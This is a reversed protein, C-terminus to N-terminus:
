TTLKRRVLFGMAIMLIFIAPIGLSPILLAVGLRTPDGVDISVPDDTPIPTQGSDADNNPDGDNDQDWNAMAQNEVSQVGVGSILTDFRIVIENNLEEPTSDPAAGQDEGLIATLELRNLNANFIPTTCTSTGTAVCSEGGFFVTNDPMEDFIFVPLDRDNNPNFWWFTWHIVRPNDADFEGIKLGVPPNLQLSTDDTADNNDPNVDQGNAGDDGISVNNVVLNVGIALPDDVLVAFTESGTEDVNLNGVLFTCTSGASGDPTCTWAVSSSAADYSTNAPVTETITVGTANQDGINSYDLTYVITQGPGSSIDGDTKTITLDPFAGVDTTEPDTNNSDDPDDGNTGDDAVSATNLIQDVGAPLPNDLIVAYQITSPGDIVNLNGVNFTCTSGANNDPACTWGASSSTPDFTTNAPVTDTVVVGTADQPGLNQYTLDYIITGGANVNDSQDVKNLSLDPAADLPTNDDGTNNNPDADDGNDGDDAISITNDISDVGAPLTEIVDVAFTTSGSDGGGDLNGIALTCTSTATSDPTCLWGAASATANFVTHLPVTETIVVGTSEQDGINSYDITYIITGGAIATIGGDDKSITLDPVSGVPTNDGGTNNDPDPDVGNSGDDAIVVVNNITKVNSPLPNDITIAFLTDASANVALAGVALTCSSGANGDPACAWGPSSAAANFVTNAPVTETIVVGTANQDGINNYTITYVVTDGAEASLGNDTKTVVLDPTADVPTNDSGDNDDPTPDVGNNGDDGISVSNAIQTVGAPLPDDVQIAFLVSAAAIGADVTGINQTCTSGASGDPVCVWTGTSGAANFTSNAPVTETIVVGTAGQTGNNIYSLTYVIVSGPTSSVGGDDKSISLDPVATVPTDDSGNNNNPDADPGNDGDDAISVTNNIMEVGAPLISIVDVVFNVIGSQGGGNLDGVSITCTSGATNDPLCAWGVSSAGANFVTYLPVTETIVIGTSEQSGINAYNITYNISGGVTATIGGDDKSITLDPVAGIPTNDGGTNNDPDPDVGNSGDDGITVVNAIVKVNSPLPNDVTVAFTVNAMANVALAGVTFECSSGANGDPTCIWGATSSGVNFITNAPVTETIVVGTADQNGINNYTIVYAITDGADAGIGNDTKTVVLDPAADVPTNDNDGNNGPTPDVGNNGDDAISVTNNIQTVGSPLPTDITVAFLVSAPAAGANVNGINQTCTSGASNDPVCVWSGSSNGSDFTTHTPVTETIVVGTADQSGTNSYTITYVTSSGPTTTVDGDDKTVQLDPVATVPTNDTDNNNNPDADPGNTGDDAISIGNNIMEVGAPLIAIVDVAFIAMASQGGGNLDPVSLTCTSGATNNPLCAWGATSAGSNFVTNLPVTETIVIGTAQQTGINSYSIAYSITGGVSATAGGDDKTIVLDPVATVPTNDGGTNNDPNPDIGNTGDDTISVNNVIALVTAPLPNDIDIAFNVMSGGNVAVSGIALTCSSGANNDPLCVWGATSSGPNFTSNAPVTETIVVGTANQNGINDYTIIYTVTDGANAMVNNDTKSIVFDPAANVPTNDNDSNDDPTPDAGNTGDDAISVSNNIQTVGSALPNDIQVAFNVNGTGNNGALNGVTFNCTSGATNDPLCTWGITSNAANFVTNAPIIETIVVGTADQTGVNIYNILYTVIGGPITSTDGDTKTVQLDPTSSIPTTDTGTNNMSDSDAGNAGDDAISATNSLQTVGAALPSDITVAFMTTAAPDGADVNGINQTCTSGASNDPLCTWIGSSSAMDFTSNAPVTETIVVGTADQNGINAYTLTYIVVGGPMATTGGDDKSITLDPAGDVAVVTSDDDTGTDPDDTMSDPLEDSEVLGQNALTEIGTPLPNNVTVTYTITVSSSNPLSAIDIEVFTDGATNGTTITGLTTTVSGVDLQTNTDPADSLTVNSAPADGTNNIVITYLIQEGPSIGGSMNTDTVIAAAKTSDLVPIALMTSGDVDPLDRETPDAGPLTSAETVTATNPITTPLTVDNRLTVNFTFVIMEAPEISTAPTSGMPDSTISVTHDTAGPGAADSLIFGTPITVGTITSVDWINTDLVDEITIDYASANGTNSLTLTIPVVNDTMPGMSKNLGLLPVVVEIDATNNLMTGAGYTFTATNTLLDLDANEVVDVVRATVTIIIHDDTDVMGDPANTVTGFNLTAQDDFADADTNVIVATGPLTTSINGGITDVTASVMEMVGGSGVLPLQDVVVANTTTGEPFIVTINFDILEGIAMDPILMNGVNDGTDGLSTNVSSATKIIAPDPTVFSSNAMDSDTRTESGIVSTSTWSATVTNQYSENPNVAVDVSVQYEITCSDTALALTSFTFEITPDTSSDTVLGTCTSMVTSDNIWSTGPNPLVDTVTFNFADSTSTANVHDITIRYTLTDGADATVSAPVTAKTVEIVPAVVDILATSEINVSGSTFRATNIVDNLGGQNVMDDVLIANVQFVIQDDANSVGDPNNFVDGLNWTVLDNYTDADSNSIVPPAASGPVTLQGGISIIQTGLVQADMLTTVTPLQDTVVAALSTGEPITLTFRYTVLEGVAVDDEPGNIATMTTAESTDFVIKNLGPATIMVAHSENSSGDREEANVGPLSDWVVGATNVINQEPAVTNDVTVDFSIVATSGLTFNSWFASIIGANEVLTGGDPALGSDLTLNGAFSFGTPINDTLTVDFANANSNTTADNRIEITFTVTDGADATTTPSSKDIGLRPEVVEIDASASANLGASYQVMVNNTLVELGSNVNDDTVIATVEVIIRDDDNLVGDPINTVSGFDFAVVNAAGITGMTLTNTPTLQGGVSVVTSSVVEMQGTANGPLTDTIIVSPSVGEALTATIRFTVEEGITLDVLGVNGEGSVGGTQESSTAPLVTKVVEAGSVSVTAPNSTPGYTRGGVPLSTSEVAATNVLMAGSPASAGIIANFTITVPSAPSFPMTGVDVVVTTDPGGGNGTTVSGQSTMVTGDVLTLNTNTLLDTMVVNFADSTGTNRLVVTYIVTDGADAMMPMVSKDITVNPERITVNNASDSINGGDYNFTANNNRNQGNSNIPLDAVLTTYLITITDPTGNATNSNTINDFPFSANRTGIGTADNLVGTFGGAHSTSIGATAVISDFSQFVLGSDLVDTLTTNLSQGETLTIVVSYQITEGITVTADNGDPDPATDTVGKTISPEGVIATADDMLTPFPVGGVASAFVTSATNTFSSEPQVVSSVTCTYTVLATDTSYPAGVTGDNAELPNSLSLGTSLSGTTVLPTLAGNTVSDITCGTLEAIAPDTITVDFARAGGTNEITLVFTIDDGADVGTVDGDIPIIAPLPAITGQDTASIGKVMNLVPANVTISVPTVGSTVEGVTNNSNIQLLNALNLNDAFPDTSITVDVDVSVTQATVTSINPWEIRLSNTAADITISTPTLGMTDIPSLRIDGTAFTLNIDNVDFVPLPFFDTFIVNETDGSPIALSLRYTVTDGPSYPGTTIVQKSPMVPVITTGAQSSDICAAAGDTLGYAASVTNTLTDNALLPDPAVAYDTDVSATYTLTIPTGAPLNGTVAGIDFSLTTQGASPMDNGVVPTLAVSGGNVILTQLTGFTLGDPLIDTLVLSDAIGFDTLQINLTYTITDGPSINETSVGKQISLHELQVRSTDSLQPIASGGFDADFTATNIELNNDCISEDLADSFHGSYTVIIDGGGTGTVSTCNIILPNAGNDTCGVGGAIMVSLPDLVFNAPLNDTIVINDLTNTAAVNATLTYTVPWTTGPPREGEPASNQKIFEALIPTATFNSPPGIIPGNDGTPTDGFQYVPNVAINLPDNITAAADITFCIEVDLQPAGAVLSGIPLEILILTAGEPGTVDQSIITDTLMNGPPAPFVGVTTATASSGFLMASNFTVDQPVILQLYPGFGPPGTNTLSVTSCFSSGPFDSENMIPGINPVQAYSTQLLILLLFLLIKRYKNNSKATLFKAYM